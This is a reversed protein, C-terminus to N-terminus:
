HPGGIKKKRKRKKKAKLNLKNVILYSGKDVKNNKGMLLPCAVSTKRQLGM